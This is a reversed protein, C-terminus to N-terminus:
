SLPIPLRGYSAPRALAVPARVAPAPALAVLDRMSLCDVALHSRLVQLLARLLPLDDSQLRTESLHIGVRRAGRFQASLLAALGARDITGHRRLRAWELTVPLRQPSTRRSTLPQDDVGCVARIGLAPLEDALGAPEEGELMSLVPDLKRGLRARLRHRALALEQRLRRPGRADMGAARSMSAAVPSGALGLQHVGLMPGIREQLWDAVPLDVLTAPMAVDLPVGATAFLAAVPRIGGGDVGDADLRFFVPVARQSADLTSRLVRNWEEM